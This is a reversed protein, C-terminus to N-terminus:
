RSEKFTSMTLTEGKKVRTVSSLALVGWNDLALTRLIGMVHNVGIRPDEGTAFKQLYDVVLLREAGGGYLGSLSEPTFPPELVEVRGLLPVLSTSAEEVRELEDKRLDAFRIKRGSVGSRRTLERRLLVEFSMEANAIVARREPEQELLGFVYQMVLATKGAGPPAGLVTVKGPGCEFGGLPEGAMYLVDGEGRRLKAMLEGLVGIAPTTTPKTKKHQGNSGSKSQSEWPPIDDGALDGVPGETKAASAIKHRLEKETWPPVCRPNYDDRMIQFAVEESLGFGKVLRCAVKFAAKHGDQGSIAADMTRVYRRAREVVDLPEPRSDNYM